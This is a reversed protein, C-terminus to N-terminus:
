IKVANIPREGNEYNKRLVAFRGYKRDVVFEGKEKAVALIEDKEWVKTRFIGNEETDLEREFGVFM